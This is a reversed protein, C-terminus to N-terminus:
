PSPLLHLISLPTPRHHHYPITIPSAPRKKPSHQNIPDGNLTKTSHHHSYLETEPKKGTQNLRLLEYVMWERCWLLALGVGEMAFLPVAM